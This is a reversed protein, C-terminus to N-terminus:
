QDMMSNNDVLKGLEGDRGIDYPVREDWQLTRATDMSPNWYDHVLLSSFRNGNSDELVVYAYDSSDVCYSCNYHYVARIIKYERESLYGREGLNPDVINDQTSRHPNTDLSGLIDLDEMKIEPRYRPDFQISTDENFIIKKNQLIKPLSRLEDCGSKGSSCSNSLALNVVFDAVKKNKSGFQTLLGVGISLIIFSVFLIKCIKWVWSLKGKHKAGVLTSGSNDEELKKRWTINRHIFYVPFVVLILPFIMGIGWLIPRTQVGQAKFKRSDIFAWVIFAVFPWISILKATLVVLWSGVSRPGAVILTYPIMPNIRGVIDTFVMGGLSPVILLGVFLILFSVAVYKFYDLFVKLNNPLISLLNKM